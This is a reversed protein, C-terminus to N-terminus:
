AIKVQELRRALQNYLRQYEIRKTPDTEKEIMREGKELRELLIYYEHHKIAHHVERGFAELQDLAEDFTRPEITKLMLHTYMGQSIQKQEKAKQLIRLFMNHRTAVYENLLTQSENINKTM